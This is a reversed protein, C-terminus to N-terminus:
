IPREDRRGFFSILRLDCPILPPQAAITGDPRYLIRVHLNQTTYLIEEGALAGEPWFESDGYADWRERLLKLLSPWRIGRTAWRFFEERDEIIPTPFGPGTMRLQDAVQFPRDACAAGSGGNRIGTSAGAFDPFAAALFFVFTLTKSM